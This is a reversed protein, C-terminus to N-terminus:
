GGRPMAGKVIMNGNLLRKNQISGINTINTINNSNSNSYGNSCPIPHSSSAIASGGRAPVASILMNM